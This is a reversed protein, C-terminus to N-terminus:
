GVEADVHWLQWQGHSIFWMPTLTQLSRSQYSLDVHLNWKLFDRKKKAAMSPCRKLCIPISMYWSYLKNNWPWILTHCQRCGMIFLTVVWNIITQNQTEVQPKNIIKTLEVKEQLVNYIIKTLIKVNNVVCIFFLAWCFKLITVCFWNLFWYANM